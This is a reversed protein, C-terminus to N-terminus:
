GRNSRFWRIAMFTAAGLLGLGIALALLWPIKLEWTFGYYAALVGTVM